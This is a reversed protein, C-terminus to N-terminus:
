DVDLTEALATAVSRRLDHLVWAAIPTGGNSEAIAGDLLRKAHSFSTLPRKGDGTFVLDSDAIRPLDDIIALAPAGLAVVHSRKSKVRERPLALEAKVLNLESWRMGAVEQLRCATLILLKVICGYPYGIATAAQWVLALEADSLVRDRAIE